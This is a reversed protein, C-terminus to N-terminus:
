ATTPRLSWENRALLMRFAHRYKAENALDGLLMCQNARSTLMEGVTCYDFRGIGDMAVVFEIEEDGAAIWGPDGLLHLSSRRVMLFGRWEQDQWPGERSLFGDALELARRARTEREEVSGELGLRLAEFMEDVLRGDALTQDIRAWAATREATITM